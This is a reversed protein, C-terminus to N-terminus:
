LRTVVGGRLSTVGLGHSVLRSRDFLSWCGLDVNLVQRLLEIDCAFGGATNGSFGFSIEISGDFKFEM